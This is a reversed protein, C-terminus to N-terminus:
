EKVPLQATYAQHSGPQVRQSMTIRTPGSAEAGSWTGDEWRVVVRTQGNSEVHITTGNQQGDAGDKRTPGINVASLLIALAAVSFIAFAAIGAVLMVDIM